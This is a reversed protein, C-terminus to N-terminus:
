LSTAKIGMLLTITTPIPPTGAVYSRSLMCIKWQLMTEACMDTMVENNAVM